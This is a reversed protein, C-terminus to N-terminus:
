PNTTLSKVGPSPPHGLWEASLEWRAKRRGVRLLAMNQQARVSIGQAGATAGTMGNRPRPTVSQLALYTESWLTM